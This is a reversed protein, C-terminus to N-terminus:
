PKGEEGILAAIRNGAEMVETGVRFQDNCTVVFDLITRWDSRVAPWDDVIRATPKTIEDIDAQMAKALGIGFRALRERESM